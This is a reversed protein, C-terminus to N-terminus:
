PDLRSRLLAQAGAPLTWAGDTAQEFDRLYEVLLFPLGETEAYLREDFGPPYRNAPAGDLLQGVERLGLRHLGNVAAHGGREVDALVRRVPHDNPTRWTLLVLMRREALRRFGYALLQLSAEDAWQADDILLM